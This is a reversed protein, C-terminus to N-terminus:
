IELTFDNRTLLKSIFLQCYEMITEIGESISDYYEENDLKNDGLLTKHRLEFRISNKIKTIKIFNLTSGQILPKSGEFCRPIENGSFIMDKVDLLRNVVIDQYNRDDPNKNLEHLMEATSITSKFKFCKHSVKLDGNSDSIDVKFVIYIETAEEGVKLIQLSVEDTYPISKNILYDYETKHEINNKETKVASSLLLDVLSTNKDNGINQINCNWVIRRIDFNPELKYWQGRTVYTCDEKYIVHVPLLLEGELIVVSSELPKQYTYTTDSATHTINLIGTSSLKRIIKDLTTESLKTIELLKSLTNEGNSIHSLIDSELRSYSTFKTQM